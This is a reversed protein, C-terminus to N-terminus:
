IFYCTLFSVFYNFMISSVVDHVNFRYKLWGSIAGLMAGAALGILLVLPISLPPPLKSYGVLITALFGATLMQGSVGINFLGGRLGVVVGLSGLLMPSLIGLYSLFDTLMSSSKSYSPKLGLGSGQFFSYIATFPNRGIVVFVLILVAFTLIVSVFPILLRSSSLRSLLQNAKM